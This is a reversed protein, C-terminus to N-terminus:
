IVKGINFKNEADTRKKINVLIKKDNPEVFEKKILGIGHEGSIQGGLKKVVKMMEPILKEQKKSFCPHLIGVGLHGFTPIKKVELWVLLKEFKDILIKPDEIRIYGKGALLPYVKDRMAMVKEYEEGQLKGDESEFEVILHHEGELGLWESSRKDIFEVMSVDSNRKLDRVIEVIESVSDSSFLSATRQKKETLKLSAKVIVGTIGEMGSYDSLETRTKRQIEGRSDVVEIWNVWNSTRGYKIARSGVADTAIMGGITCIRHSSPNVPFELGFRALYHQLDDLIVGAEVEITKRQKDLKEIKILKGLNLVVDQNNQPVAGGALGTGAGQIVVRSNLRVVNQVGGITSPNEVGAARGEIQSADTEYVKIINKIQQKM